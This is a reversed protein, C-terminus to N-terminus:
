ANRSLRRNRADSPVPKRAGSTNLSSKWMVLMPPASCFM